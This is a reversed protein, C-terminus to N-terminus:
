NWIHSWCPITSNWSSMLASSCQRQIVPTWLILCSFLFSLNMEVVNSRIRSIGPLLMAISGCNFIDHCMLEARPYVIKCLPRFTHNRLVFSYVLLYVKARKFVWTGTTKSYNRLLGSTILKVATAWVYLVRVLLWLTMLEWHPHMM